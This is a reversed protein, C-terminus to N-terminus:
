WEDFLGKENARRAERFVKALREERKSAQDLVVKAARIRIEADESELLESLVEEARKKLAEGEIQQAIVSSAVSKEVEEIFGPQHLYNYITRRSVGVIQAVQTATTAGETIAAITKNMREQKTM